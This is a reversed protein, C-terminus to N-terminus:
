FQDTERISKLVAETIEHAITEIRDDQYQNLEWNMAVNIGFIAKMRQVNDKRIIAVVPDSRKPLINKLVSYFGKGAAELKGIEDVFLIDAQIGENLARCGFSIAKKTIDRCDFDVLDEGPTFYPHKSGDSINVYTREDSGPSLVGGCTLSHERLMDVVRFALSTKGVYFPGTISFIPM